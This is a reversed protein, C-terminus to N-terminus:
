CPPDMGVRGGWNQRGQNITICHINTSMICSIGSFFKGSLANVILAAISPTQAKM